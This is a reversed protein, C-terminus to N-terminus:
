NGVVQVPDIWVWRHAIKVLKWECVATVGYEAAEAIAQATMQRTLQDLDNILKDLDSNFAATRNKFLESEESLRADANSVETEIEALRAKISTVEDAYTATLLQAELISQEERLSAIVESGEVSQIDSLYDAQLKDAEAVAKNIEDDIAANTEDIISLAKEVDVNEAALVAKGFTLAFFVTFLVALSKKLMILGGYSKWSTM